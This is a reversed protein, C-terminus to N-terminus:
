TSPEVFTVIGNLLQVRSAVFTNPAAPENLKVFMM